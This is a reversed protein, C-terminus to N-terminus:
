PTIGKYLGPALVNNVLSYIWSYISSKILLVIIYFRLSSILPKHFLFILKSKILYQIYNNLSKYRKGRKLEYRCVKLEVKIFYHAFLKHLCTIRNAYFKIYYSARAKRGSRVLRAIYNYSSYIRRKIYLLIIIIYCLSFNM